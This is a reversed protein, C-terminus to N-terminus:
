QARTPKHLIGRILSFETSYYKSSHFMTKGGDCINTLSHYRLGPICLIGLCKGMLMALNM